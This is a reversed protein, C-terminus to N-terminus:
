DWKYMNMSNLKALLISKDIFENLDTDYSPKLSSLIFNQRTYKNNLMRVFRDVPNDYVMFIISYDNNKDSLFDDVSLNM